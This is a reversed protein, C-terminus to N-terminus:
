EQRSYILLQYELTTEKCRLILYSTVTAQSNLRWIDSAPTWWPGYMDPKVGANLYKPNHRVVWSPCAPGGWTQQWGHLFFCTTVPRTFQRQISSRLAMSLPSSETNGLMQWGSTESDMNWSIIFSIGILNNQGLYVWSTRHSLEGHVCISSCFHQTCPSYGSIFWHKM